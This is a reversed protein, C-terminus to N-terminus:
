RGRIHLAMRVVRIRLPRANDARTAVRDAQEDLSRLLTMGHDRDSRARDLMAQWLERRASDKAVARELGRIVEPDGSLFQADALDRGWLAVEHARPDGQLKRLAAMTFLEAIMADVIRSDPENGAIVAALTDALQRVDADREHGDISADISELADRLRTGWRARSRRQAAEMTRIAEDMIEPQPGNSTAGARDRTAGIADTKAHAPLRGDCLSALLALLM